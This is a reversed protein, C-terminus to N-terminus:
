DPSAVMNALEREYKRIVQSVDYEAAMDRVNESVNSFLNIDQSIRKVIQKIHEKDSAIFGNKTDEIYEDAGYDNYVISPIKMCGTEFVTKPRGEARSPLIHLDVDLLLKYLSERDIMGHFHVNSLNYWGSQAAYELDKPYGGVVHFTLEPFANALEIFESLNKREFNNGIFVVNKIKKRYDVESKLFFTLDMPNRLVTNEVRVGNQRCYKLNNESLAYLQDIKSIGPSDLLGEPNMGLVRFTKVKFFRFLRYLEDFEDGRYIMAVDCWALGRLYSFYKWIKDPYRRKILKVEDLGETGTQNNYSYMTM